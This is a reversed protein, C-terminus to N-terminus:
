PYISNKISSNRYESPTCGIYKKFIKGFYSTGNFGVDFAINSIPEKNKLLLEKAKSVRYEMLYEFPTVKLIRKFSRCCESKSISAAAAINDLSIDESYCKHIYYLASKVREEDHSVVNVCDKIDEKIERLLNLWASCLYNRMELEYGYTKENSLLFIEKLYNLINQQWKVTSKLSIFKLNSSESIPKIYKQEILSQNIGGILIPDFVISFMISNSNFPKVQHLVNSNIMIGEGPELIIKEGEVFFYVKEYLSYSFQIEKHWHLRIHGDEFLNFNDTYIAMPFDYSGHKTTEQLNNDVEIKTVQM